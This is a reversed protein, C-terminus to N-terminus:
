YNLTQEDWTTIVVLCILTIDPCIKYGPSYKYGFNNRSFNQLCLRHGPYLKVHFEHSVGLKTLLKLTRLSCLPELNGITKKKEQILLHSICVKEWMKYVVVGVCKRQFTPHKKGEHKKKKKQIIFFLMLCELVFLTICDTHSQPESQWDPDM